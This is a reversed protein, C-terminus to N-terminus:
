CLKENELSNLEHNQFASTAPRQKLPSNVRVFKVMYVAMIVGIIIGGLLYIFSAQDLGVQKQPAHTKEM